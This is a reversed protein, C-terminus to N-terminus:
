DKQFEHKLKSIIVNEIHRVEVIIKKQFFFNLIKFLINKQLNAQSQFQFIFKKADLKRNNYNEQKSKQQMSM